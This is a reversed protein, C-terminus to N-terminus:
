RLAKLLRKPHAPHVPLLDAENFALLLAEEEIDLMHKDSAVLLPIAALSTEGLIRGDNEEEEPILKLESLRGSFRDAIVLDLDSLLFPQCKWGRLNQLARSAFTRQPEGGYISLANLEGAATPTVLLEYGRSQFEERFEQAFNKGEALDLLLNTDLALQRKLSGAM